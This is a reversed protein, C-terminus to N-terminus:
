RICNEIFAYYHDVAGISGHDTNKVIKVTDQKSPFAGILRETIKCPINIDNEAVVSLTREDIDRARSLSDYKDRLM